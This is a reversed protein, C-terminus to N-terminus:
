PEVLGENVILAEVAGYMCGDLGQVVLSAAM